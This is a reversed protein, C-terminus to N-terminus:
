QAQLQQALNWQLRNPDSSLSLPRPQHLLPRNHPPRAQVDTRADMLPLATDPLPAAIDPSDKTLFNAKTSEVFSNLEGMSHAVDVMPAMQMALLM